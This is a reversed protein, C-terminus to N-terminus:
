CVAKSNCVDFDAEEEESVILLEDDVGGDESLYEVALSVIAPGSAPGDPSSQIPL